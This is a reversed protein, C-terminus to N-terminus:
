DRRRYHINPIICTRVSIYVISRIVASIHDPTTGCCGGILSAGARVCKNIGNSFEQPSMNFETKNDILKPIGAVTLRM